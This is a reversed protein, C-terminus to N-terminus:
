LNKRMETEHVLYGCKKYFPINQKNCDLIIKYCKQEVAYAELFEMLKRGVGMKQFDKHVAVDEVHMVMGGNHLFKKEIFCSATGVIRNDHFCIITRIRSKFRDRLIEGFVQQSLEISSLSAITEAFGKDFDVAFLDRVLLDTLKPKKKM